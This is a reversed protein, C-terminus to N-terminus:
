KQAKLLLTEAETIKDSACSWLVPVAGDAIVLYSRTREAYYAEGKAQMARAFDLYAPCRALVEDRKLWVTRSAMGQNSWAWEALLYYRVADRLAGAGAPPLGALYLEVLPATGTLRAEYERLTPGAAVTSRLSQM